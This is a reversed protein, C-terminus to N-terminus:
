EKGEVATKLEKSPKFKVAKKAPVQVAEGTKPNRGVRAAREKVTFVGLGGLVVKPETRLAETLTGLIADLTKEIEAKPQGSRAAAKDVFESKTM